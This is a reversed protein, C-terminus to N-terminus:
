KPDVKEKYNHWGKRKTAGGGGRGVILSWDRFVSIIGKCLHAQVKLM